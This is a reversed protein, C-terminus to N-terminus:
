DAGYVRWDKTNVRSGITSRRVGADDERYTIVFNYRIELVFGSFAVHSLLITSLSKLLAKALNFEACLFATSVMSPGTSTIAPGPVPFVWSNDLLTAFIKFLASTPGLLMSQRVKVSLAARFM